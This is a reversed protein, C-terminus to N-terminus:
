MWCRCGHKEPSDSMANKCAPWVLENFYFPYEEDVKALKKDLIVGSRSVVIYGKDDTDHWPYYSYKVEKENAYELDYTIM